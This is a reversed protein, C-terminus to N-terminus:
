LATERLHQSCATEPHQLVAYDVRPRQSSASEFM